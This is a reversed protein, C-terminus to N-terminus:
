WITYTHGKAAASSLGLAHGLVMLPALVFELGPPSELQSNSGYVAAWHGHGIALAIGASNWLDSVPIWSHDGGFGLFITWYVLAAVALLVTVVVPASREAVWDAVAGRRMEGLEQQGLGAQCWRCRWSGAGHGGGIGPSSM